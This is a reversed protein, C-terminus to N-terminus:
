VRFMPARWPPNSKCEQIGHRATSTMDLTMWSSVIPYKGDGNQIILLLLILIARRMFTGRAFSGTLGIIAIDDLFDRKVREIVMNILLENKSLLKEKINEDM